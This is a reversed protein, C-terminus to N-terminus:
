GSRQIAFLRQMADTLRALRHGKDTLAYGASTLIAYGDEQMVNLRNEFSETAVLRGLMISYLETHGPQILLDLVLRLSISKYVAGFGMLFLLTPFWFVISVIWFNAHRGLVTAGVLVMVYALVAAGIAARAPSVAWPTRLVMAVAAIYFAVGGLGFPIAACIPENTM